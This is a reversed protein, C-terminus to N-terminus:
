RTGPMGLRFGARYCSRLGNGEGGEVFHLKVGNMIACDSKFSLGLNGDDSRPKLADPSM